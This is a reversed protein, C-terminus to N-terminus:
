THDILKLAKRIEEKIAGGVNARLKLSEKLIIIAEGASDHRASLLSRMKQLELYTEELDRKFDNIEQEYDSTDKVAEQQKTTSTSAAVLNDIAESANGTAKLYEWTQPLITINRREKGKDTAIAGLKLNDLSKQNMRRLKNRM